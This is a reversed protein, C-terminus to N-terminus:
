YVTLRLICDTSIPEDDELEEDFNKEFNFLLQRSPTTGTSEAIYDKIDSLLTGPFVSLELKSRGDPLKVVVTSPQVALIDGPSLKFNDDLNTRLSEDFDSAENQLGLRLENIPIGAAEAVVGKINGLTESDSDLPIEIPTLDPGIVHISEFEGDTDSEVDSESDSDSDSFASSEYESLEDNSCFFSYTTSNSKDIDDKKENKSTVTNKLGLTALGIMQFGSPNTNHNKGFKGIRDKISGRPKAAENEKGDTQIEGKRGKASDSPKPNEQGVPKLRGVRGKMPEPSQANTNEKGGTQFKGIRDKILGLSKSDSNDKGGSKGIRDKVSGPSKATTNGNQFKGIRDKISSKATEPSYYPTTDRSSPQLPKKGIQKKVTEVNSKEPTSSTKATKEEEKIEDVVSAELKAVAEAAAMAVTAGDDSYRRQTDKMPPRLPRITTGFSKARHDISNGKAEVTNEKSSEVKRTQKEVMHKQAEAPSKGEDDNGHLTDKLENIVKEPLGDSSRRKRVRNTPTGQTQFKNPAIEATDNERSSDGSDGESTSKGSSFPKVLRRRSSSSGSHNEDREQREVEGSRPNASEKEFKAKALRVASNAGLVEKATDGSSTGKVSKSEPKVSISDISWPPSTSKEKNFKLKARDVISRSSPTSTNTGLVSKENRPSPVNPISRVSQLITSNESADTFAASHDSSLAAYKAAKDVTNGSKGIVDSLRTLSRKSGSSSRGTDDDAKANEAAEEKAKAQKLQQFSMRKPKNSKKTEHANTKKPSHNAEVIKNGTSENYVSVQTDTSQIDSSEQSADDIVQSRNLIESVVSVPSPPPAEKKSAPSPPSGTKDKESDPKKTISQMSIRFADPIGDSKDSLPKASSDRKWNRRPKNEEAPKKNEEEPLTKSSSDRRWSRRPKNEEGPKKNEEEPLTKSSSDRRWSRLPKAEVPKKTEENADNNDEKEPLNKASSSRKWPRNSKKEETPKEEDNISTRPGRSNKRLGSRSRNSKSKESGRSRDSHESKKSNNRTDRDERGRSSSPSRASKRREETQERAKQKSSSRSRRDELKRNRRKTPTPNREGNSRSKSRSAKGANSRSTTRPQSSTSARPTSSSREDTRTKVNRRPKSGSSSTRSRPSVASRSRPSNAALSPDSDRRGKM